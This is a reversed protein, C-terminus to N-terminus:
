VTDTDTDTDTNTERWKKVHIKHIKRREKQLSTKCKKLGKNVHLTYMTTNCLNCM